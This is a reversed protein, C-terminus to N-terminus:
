KTRRSDITELATAVDQGKYIRAGSPDFVMLYPLGKAWKLHQKAVPLAFSAEPDGADLSVARVATDPHKALYGKLTDATAYCPGCWPAGFDVVTYKGGELVDKLDVEDGRSVVRVDLAGVESWPDPRKALTGPPPCNEMVEVKTPRYPTSALAREIADTDGAAGLTACLAGEVFSAKVSDVFDVKRVASQVSKECGGCTMGEVHVVVVKPPAVPEARVAVTVGLLGCGLAFGMGLGMRRRRKIM